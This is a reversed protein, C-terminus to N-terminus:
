RFNFLFIEFHKPNLFGAEDPRQDFRSRETSRVREGIDARGVQILSDGHHHGSGDEADSVLVPGNQQTVLVNVLETGEDGIGQAYSM